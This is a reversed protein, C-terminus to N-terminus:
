DGQVCYCFVAAAARGYRRGRHPGHVVVRRGALVLNAAMGAGMKGLGIVGVTGVSRAAESSSSLSRTPNRVLISLRCWKMMQILFLLLFNHLQSDVLIIQYDNHQKFEYTPPM